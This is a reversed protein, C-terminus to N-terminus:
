GLPSATTSFRAGDAKLTDFVYEIEKLAEDIYPMPLMAFVGFRGPHDAMLRHAYENAERAVRAADAVPM